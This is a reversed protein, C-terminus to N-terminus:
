CGKQQKRWGIARHVLAGLAYAGIFAFSLHSFKSLSLIPSYGFEDLPLIIGLYIWGFLFLGINAAQLSRRLWHMNQPVAVEIILSCIVVCYLDYLAIPIGVGFNHAVALPTDGLTTGFITSTAFLCVGACYAIATGLTSDHSAWESNPTEIDQRTKVRDFGIPLQSLLSEPEHLAAPKSSPQQLIPTIPSGGIDTDAKYPISNSRIPNM